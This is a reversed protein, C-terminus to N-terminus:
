KRHSPYLIKYYTNKGKGLRVILGLNLLKRFDLSRTAKARETFGAYIRDNIYGHKEIYKIIKEHHSALRTMPTISIAELEKSVRMLEDIIGETFYELWETFDITNKIDYYNGFVGVKEFYRSVNRNYYNEFSFLHFTNLGLNALLHKTILRTTRGNGDIFPHIIVLQKHFIGSLILPDIASKNSNIYNVLNCTLDRAEDHEPPWYITKRTKPNNVFVPEKRLKGLKSKSILKNMVIKQTDLVLDLTLLNNKSKPLEKLYELASNYNLIEQETDRIHAPHNRLLKKVETLPLPNGEISTSSYASMARAAEELEALVPQPFSKNNLDAILVAVRKINELLRSSINFKPKFM